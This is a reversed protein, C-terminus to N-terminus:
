AARKPQSTLHWRGCFNCLYTRIPQGSDRALKAAHELAATSHRWSRKGTQPCKATQKREPKFSPRQRRQRSGASV